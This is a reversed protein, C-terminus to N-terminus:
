SMASEGSSSFFAAPMLMCWNCYLLRFNTACAIPKAVCWLPLLHIHIICNLARVLPESSCCCPDSAAECAMLGQLVSFKARVSCFVSTHTGSPDGNSCLHFCPQAHWIHPMTVCFAQQPLYHSIPSLLLVLAKYLLASADSKETPLFSTQDLLAFHFCKLTIWGTLTLWTSQLPLPLNPLGPLFSLGMLTM